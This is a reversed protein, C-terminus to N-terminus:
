KEKRNKNETDNAGGCCTPKCCGSVKQEKAFQRENKKVNQKLENPAKM